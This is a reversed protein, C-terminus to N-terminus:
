LTTRIARSVTTHHVNLIRACDRMSRGEKLEERVFRLQSQTLKPPRGLRQGRRKAAALGDRTRSQIMAHEFEAFAGILQLLMKGAPSTTDVPEALSRFGAGKSGLNEIISLLDKLSRSIRDLRPVLVVDGYGVKKLLRHLETRRGHAGSGTEAFIREAGAARLADVQGEISQADTSVRAYGFVTM